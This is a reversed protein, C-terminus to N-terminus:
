GMDQLMVSGAGASEGSITVLSPDGGFNTIYEQTTHPKYPEIRPDMEPRSPPQCTGSGM